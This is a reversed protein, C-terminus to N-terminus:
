VLIAMGPVAWIPFLRPTRSDPTQVAPSCGQLLLQSWPLWHVGLVPVLFPSRQCYDRTHFSLLGALGRWIGWGQTGLAAAQSRTRQERWGVSCMCAWVDGPSGPGPGWLGLGPESVDECSPTLHSLLWEKILRPCLAPRAGSLDRRGDRPKRWWPAPREPSCSLAPKSLSGDEPSREHQTGSLALSM